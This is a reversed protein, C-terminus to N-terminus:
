AKRFREVGTSADRTQQRRFPAQHMTESQDEGNREGAGCARDEHGGGPGSVEVLALHAARTLVRGGTRGPRDALGVRQRDVQRRGVSTATLVETAGPERDRRARKRGPQRDGVLPEDASRRRRRSAVVEIEGDRVVLGGYQLGGDSSRKMMLMLGPVGRSITEVDLRGSAFMLWGYVAGASVAEPPVTLEHVSAPPVSGGPSVSLGFPTMEPVGVCLPSKEKVTWAFPAPVVSVFCSAIKTSAGSSRPRAGLPVGAVVCGSATLM